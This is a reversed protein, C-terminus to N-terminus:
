MFPHRKKILEEMLHLQLLNLMSLYLILGEVIARNDSILVTVVKGTKGRENGSIVKVTDGKKIHLKQPKKNNKEM